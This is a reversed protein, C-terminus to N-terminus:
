PDFTVDGQPQFSMPLLSSLLRQNRIATPLLSSYADEPGVINDSPTLVRYRVPQRQSKM